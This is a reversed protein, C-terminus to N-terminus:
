GGFARELQNLIVAGFDKFQWFYLGMIIATWIYFCIALFGGFRHCHNKDFASCTGFKLMAGICRFPIIGARMIKGDNRYTVFAEFYINIIRKQLIGLPSSHREEIAPLYRKAIESCCKIRRETHTMIGGPTHYYRALPENFVTFTNQPNALITLWLEFDQANRLTEDFGGVKM